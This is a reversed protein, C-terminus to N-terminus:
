GTPQNPNTEGGTGGPVGGGDDVNWDDNFGGPDGPYVIKDYNGGPAKDGSLQTGFPYFYQIAEDQTFASWKNDVVSTKPQQTQGPDVSAEFVLQHEFVMSGIHDGWGYGELLV